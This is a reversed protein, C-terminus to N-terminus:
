FRVLREPKRTTDALAEEVTWDASDYVSLRWLIPNTTDRQNINTRRFLEVRVADYDDESQIWVALIATVVSGDGPDTLEIEFGLEGYDLGHGRAWGRMGPALSQPHLIFITHGTRDTQAVAPVSLLALLVLTRATM